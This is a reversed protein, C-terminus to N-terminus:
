AENKDKSNIISKIAGLGKKFFGKKEKGEQMNLESQRKKKRANAEEIKVNIIESICGKWNRKDEWIAHDAM